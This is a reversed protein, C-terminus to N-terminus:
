AGRALPEHLGIQGAAELREVTPALNSCFEEIAVEIDRDMITRGDSWGLEIQSDGLREPMLGYRVRFLNPVEDQVGGTWEVEGAAGVIRLGVTAAKMAHAADVTAAWVEHLDKASRVRVGISKLARRLASNRRRDVAWQQAEGLRIFGLRRLVLYVTGVLGPLFWLVVPSPAFAVVMASAGLVISGAYLALVTQRHSLGMDLLRHHIHGRDGRFLPLGRAARRGMALSTDAIPIGLAIIPVLLAVSSAPRENSHIALLALVFGLFMSGTDGMFISAPNFNFVLFGLAAGALAVAVQVVLLHGTVVGIAITVGVAIVAIGGALGDLGDILNLANIVGAIWIMTFPVALLGLQIPPGLPMVITEIRFGGWYAMAAVAFQVVFKLKADAGKLDDIVGLGAIIAGGGFLVVVRGLDGSAFGSFSLQACLVVFFTVVIAVGGLRPVPVEHVKRTTLALDVAGFRNALNRIVRTLTLGLAVAVFFAIAAVSV